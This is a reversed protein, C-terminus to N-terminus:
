EGAKPNALPLSALWEAEAEATILLKKGVKLAKLRGNKIEKIGTTRSLDHEEYWARFSKARRTQEALTVM